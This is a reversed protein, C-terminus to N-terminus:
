NDDGPSPQPMLGVPSPLPFWDAYTSNGTGECISRWERRMALPRSFFLIFLRPEQRKSTRPKKERNRFKHITSVLHQNNEACVGRGMPERAHAPFLAPRARGPIASQYNDPDDITSQRVKLRAEAICIRADIVHLKDTHPAHPYNDSSPAQREPGVPQENDVGLAHRGKTIPRVIVVNGPHTKPQGFQPLDLQFIAGSRSTAKSSPDAIGTSVSSVIPVPGGFCIYGSVGAPHLEPPLATLPSREPWCRDKDKKIVDKAWQKLNPNPCIRSRYTRSSAKARAGFPIPRTGPALPGPLDPVAILEGCM